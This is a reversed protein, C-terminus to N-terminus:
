VKRATRFRDAEIANATDAADAGLIKTIQKIEWNNPVNVTLEDWM